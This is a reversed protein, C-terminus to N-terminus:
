HGAVKVVAVTADDDARDYRDLLLRAAAAAPVGRVENAWRWDWRAAVGDSYLVFIDDPRFARVTILSVPTGVGLTGRRLPDRSSVGERWRRLVVNGVAAHEVLGRVCDFRLVSLVVGLCDRCAEGTGAIMRDLELQRQGELYRRAAQAAQCAPPGHGFGDIVAVLVRDRWQEMLFADGNEAQGPLARTAVGVDLSLAHAGAARLRPALWRRCTLELGGRAGAPAALRVEDMSRCVVEPRAAPRDTASVGSVEIGIRGEREIARVCLAGGGQTVLGAAIEGAAYAVEAVQRDGGGLARALAGARAKAAPVAIDGDRMVVEAAGAAAAARGPRGVLLTM